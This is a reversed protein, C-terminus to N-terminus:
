LKVRVGFDVTMGYHQISTPNGSGYNLTTEKAGTINNVNCFVQMGYWPLKQKLSLDWRLYADNYTSLENWFSSSQFIKSQYLMSVRVSFDSYDYGLAVNIVHDPQFQLAGSYFTDVNTYIYKFTNRDFEKEVVTRPYKAESYVYTYNINLVLGKFVSPLYWFNTQWDAEIGWVRADYQNNKQTYIYKKDTSEPLDYENPDLIVRKDLWFIMNEIRKSFGGLTFLGLKNEHFSLYLDFNEAFEPELEYNNWIVADRLIDIRPMILNYSPRSLTHTYAFKVNFWEVPSYKLHIMPLLFENVRTMTTDHYVYHQNPFPLTADGRSGTYVTENHEYRVGPIFQIKRGLNFEAMMYGATLYENGFYDERNSYYDHRTYTELSPNEVDKIVGLIEHMLDIDIVGGMNYDGDLFDKHDFNPNAFLYYELNTKGSPESLYDLIADKVGQGSALMYNGNYVEKDFSRDKYRYKGGFKLNGTVQQSISFDWQLNLETEFQREETTRYGENLYNFYSLSDNLSAYKVVESPPIQLSLIESSLANKQTFLFSLDTPVDNLSYSHALKGDILWSGIRKEFDFINSMVSLNYEEDRTEYKHSRDSVNFSENYRNVSTKGKNFFNKFHLVGDPIKYDFVLTVGYRNKERIADSVTYSNLYVTNEIDLEPNRLGYSGSLTNSSRNRSEANAQLYIGLKDEFFRNSISGTLMYDSVTGKLQNYGGQAVFDFKLGPNAERLKFNVSGGMFDADKDATVAKMVEIGDLSYPSIMSLDSSRDGDSAPMSIGEIMVKNYRPAMGRIVVKSGEGGVRQVSVGPLRGLTEAANADPLEQMREASIVNKIDKSNLQENIANMQGRAQATITVEELETDGSYKLEINIESKRGALTTIEIIKDDYGIYSAKLKYSGPELSVIIYNGDIDAAAGFGTGVVVVNAGVLPEGTKVDTIVGAVKSSQAMIASSIFIFLFINLLLKPVLTKM